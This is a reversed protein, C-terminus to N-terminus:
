FYKRKVFWRENISFGITFRLYSERILNAETTGRTGVQISVNLATKMGKVPTGFGLTLAYENLQKGFLELYTSNYLFGLRYRVRKLYNSYSNIDPVIEAGVSVSYSNVLSDSLNFAKFKEWNQWKFDAGVTWNDTKEFALGVGFMVPIVINGGYNEAFAITDKPVETGGNGQSFTNALYDTKAAMKSQNAFVGGVIMKLDKKLRATYQVGFNFYLDNMTIHNELKFNAYFVSDPFLITSVRNMSGFLYSANVGISLSKTIKFANGWYFRNIGGSGSYTRVVNTEDVKGPSAISYGIKSYPVMGISTRWWKTIPMGFLLYGVSAINRNDSQITSTLKIMDINFGGEFVFSLSDFATYSAPNGYNIHYPSRFAISSSGMSLNWANNNESLDGIGFRSYPSALRSQSYSSSNLILLFALSFFFYSIPRKSMLRWFKIYDWYCLM